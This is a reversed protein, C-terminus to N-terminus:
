PAPREAIGETPPDDGLVGEQEDQSTQEQINVSPFELVTTQAGTPVPDIDAQLVVLLESSTNERTKAGLLGGFLGRTTNGQSRESLGALAVVGGDQMSLVSSATSRNLTPSENVGTTTTVFNSREQSVTLEILGDRVIPTVNLTLGSDRYEVSQVANGEESFTLAGLTPVQSGANLSATAGSIAAISPEAVVRFRSDGRVASLIARVGAVEISAFSDSVSENALSGIGITDDFLSALVSLASGRTQVDRVEVLAGTLRVLPRPRDLEKIMDTARRVENEPGSLALYEPALAQVLGTGERGIGERYAIKLDPFLTEIIPVIDAPSRYAPTVIVALDDRM